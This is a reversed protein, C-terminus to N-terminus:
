VVRSVNNEVDLLAKGYVELSVNHNLLAHSAGVNADRWM